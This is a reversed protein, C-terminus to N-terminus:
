RSNRPCSVLDRSAAQSPLVFPLLLYKVTLFFLFRSPVTLLAFGSRSHRFAPPPSMLIHGHRDTEIRNPLKALVPDALIETWSELNFKTQSVREPVEITIPVSLFVGSIFFFFGVRSLQSESNM